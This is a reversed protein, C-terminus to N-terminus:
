PLMISDFVSKQINQMNSSECFRKKRHLLDETLNNTLLLFLYNVVQCNQPLLTTPSCLEENIDESAFINSLTLKFHNFETKTNIDQSQQLLTWSDQM